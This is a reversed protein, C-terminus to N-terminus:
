KEELELYKKLAPVDIQVESRKSKPILKSDINLLIGCGADTLLKSLQKDEKLNGLFTNIRDLGTYSKDLKSVGLSKTLRKGEPTGDNTLFLFTRIVAIGESVEVVLYGLLYGYFYYCLLGKNHGDAIFEAKEISTAVHSFLETPHFLDLRENLRDLAHKQMYVDFKMDQILTNGCIDGANLQTKQLSGPRWGTVLFVERKDKGFNVKRTTSRIAKLTIHVSYYPVPKVNQEIKKEFYYCYQHPKGTLRSGLVNLFYSLEKEPNEGRHCFDFLPKLKQRQLEFNLSDEEDVAGYWFFITLVYTFYDCFPIEIASGPFTFTKKNLFTEDLMARLTKLLLPHFKVHDMQKLKMPRFRLQYMPLRESYPVQEMAQRAGFTECIELVRTYFLDVRKKLEKGSLPKPRHVVKRKRKKKAM